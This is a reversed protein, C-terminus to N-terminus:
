QKNEFLALYNRPNSSDFYHLKDDLIPQHQPQQWLQEAPTLIQLLTQDVTQAQTPRLLPVNILQYQQSTCQYLYVQNQNANQNKYGRTPGAEQM